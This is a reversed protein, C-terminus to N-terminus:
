LSQSPLYTNLDVLQYWNVGGEECIEPIESFHRLNCRKQWQVYAFCGSSFFM